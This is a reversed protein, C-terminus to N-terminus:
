AIVLDGDTSASSGSRIPGPQLQNTACCTRGDLGPLQLRAYLRLQNNGDGPLTAM